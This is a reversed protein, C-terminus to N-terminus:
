CIGPIYDKYTFECATVPLYSVHMPPPICCLAWRIDREVSGEVLHLDTVDVCSFSLLYLVVYSSTNTVTLATTEQEM